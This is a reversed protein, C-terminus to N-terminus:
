DDTEDDRKVCEVLMSRRPPLPLYWRHWRTHWLKLAVRWGGDRYRIIAGADLPFEHISEIQRM